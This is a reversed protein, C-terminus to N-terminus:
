ELLINEVSFYLIQGFQNLQYKSSLTEKPM